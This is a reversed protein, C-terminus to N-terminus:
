NSSRKKFGIRGLLPWCNKKYKDREEAELEKWFYTWSIGKNILFTRIADLILQVRCSESKGSGSAAARITGLDTFSFTVSGDGMGDRIPNFFYAEKKDVEIEPHDRDHLARYYDAPSIGAEVLIQELHSLLANCAITRDTMDGDAKIRICNSSRIYEIILKGNM